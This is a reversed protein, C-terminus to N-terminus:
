RGAAPPPAPSQLYSDLYFDADVVIKETELRDKRKAINVERLMIIIILERCLLELFARYVSNLSFRSKVKSVFCVYTKISYITAPTASNASASSKPDLIKVIHLNSDERGCHIKIM